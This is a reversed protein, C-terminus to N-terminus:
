FLILVGIEDEMYPYAGAPICDVKLKLLNVLWSPLTYDENVVFRGDIFQKRLLYADISTHMIRLILRGQHSRNFQVNYPKCVWADEQIEPQNDSQLVAMDVRCIGSGKCSLSTQGFVVSASVEKQVVLSSFFTDRFLTFSSQKVM